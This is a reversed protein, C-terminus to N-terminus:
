SALCQEPVGPLSLWFLNLQKWNLLLVDMGKVLSDQVTHRSREPATLFGRRSWRECAFWSFRQFGFFCGSLHQLFCASSRVWKWRYSRALLTIPSWPTIKPLSSLLFFSMGSKEFIRHSRQYGSNLLTKKRYGKVQYFLTNYLVLPFCFLSFFVYNDNNIRVM